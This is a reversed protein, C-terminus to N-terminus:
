DLVPSELWALFISVVYCYFDRNFDIEMQVSIECSETRLKLTSSTDALVFEKSGRDHATGRAQLIGAQRYLEIARVNAERVHLFPTEGRSLIRRMVETMLARALGQGTHDPHTCVASVETYGPIKLREGAM